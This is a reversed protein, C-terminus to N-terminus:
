TNGRVTMVELGVTPEMSPTHLRRFFYLIFFGQGTPIEGWQHAMRTALVHDMDMVVVEREKVTPWKNMQIRLRIYDLSEVNFM